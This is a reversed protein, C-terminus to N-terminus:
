LSAILGVLFFRRLLDTSDLKLLLLVLGLSIRCIVLLAGLTSHLVSSSPNMAGDFVADVTSLASVRFVRRRFSDM